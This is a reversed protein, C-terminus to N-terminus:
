SLVEGEIGSKMGRVEVRSRSTVINNLKDESSARFPDSLSLSNHTKIVSCVADRWWNFGIREM